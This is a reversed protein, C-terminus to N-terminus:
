RDYMEFLIEDVWRSLSEAKWDQTHGTAPDKVKLKDGNPEVNARDGNKFKTDPAAVYVKGKHRTHAPGSPRKGYIKYTEKKGPGKPGAAAKPPQQPQAPGASGSSPPTNTVEKYGKHVKEAVKKNVFDAAEAWDRFRHTQAQPSFGIRGWTVSVVNNDRSVSWKKRSRGDIFHFTRTTPPGGTSAGSASRQSRTQQRERDEADARAQRAAQQAKKEADAAARARHAWTDQPNQASPGSNPRSASSGYDGLTKDGMVDYTRRKEPNSLLGYAVNLQAMKPGTNQGPNRDPHLASAATRYAKKIEEPSAGPAVGLLEYAKRIAEVILVRLENLSFKM